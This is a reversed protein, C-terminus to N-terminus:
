PKIMSEQLLKKIWVPSESPDLNSLIGEVMKGFDVNWNRADMGRGRSEIGQSVGGFLAGLKISHYLALTTGLQRIIIFNDGVQITKEELM